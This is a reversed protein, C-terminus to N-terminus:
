IQIEIVNKSTGSYAVASETGLYGNSASINGLTVETNFVAVIKDGNKAVGSGDASIAVVSLLEPTIPSVFAGTITIPTTALEKTGTEKDVVGTLSITYKGSEFSSHEDKAMVIEYYTLGNGSDVLGKSASSGMTFGSSITPDITELAKAKVETNFFVRIYDLDNQTFAM